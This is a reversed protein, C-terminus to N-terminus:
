VNTSEEESIRNLIDLQQQLEDIIKNTKEKSISNSNHSLIEASQLINNIDHKIKRLELYKNKKHVLLNFELQFEKEKEIYQKIINEEDNIKLNVKSLHIISFLMLLLGIIYLMFFETASKNISIIIYDFQILIIPLIFIAVCILSYVILGFTRLKRNLHNAEEFNLIHKKLKM